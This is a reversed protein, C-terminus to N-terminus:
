PTKLRLTPKVHAAKDPAIGNGDRDFNVDAKALIQLDYRAASVCCVIRSCGPSTLRVESCAGPLPSQDEHGPSVPADSRARVLM